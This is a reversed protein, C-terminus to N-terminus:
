TTVSSSPYAALHRRLSRASRDLVASVAEPLTARHMEIDEVLYPRITLLVTAALEPFREGAQAAIAHLDTGPVAAAASLARTAAETFLDVIDDHPDTPM